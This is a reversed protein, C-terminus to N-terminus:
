ERVRAVAQEEIDLLPAGGPAEPESPGVEDELAVVIQVVVVQEEPTAQLLHAEDHVVYAADPKRPLADADSAGVEQLGERSPWRVRNQVVRLENPPALHEGRSPM